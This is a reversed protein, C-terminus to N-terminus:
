LRSKAQCTTSGIGQMGEVITDLVAAGEFFCLKRRGRGIVVMADFFEVTDIRVGAEGFRNFFILGM